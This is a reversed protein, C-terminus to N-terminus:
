GGFCRAWIRAESLVRDITADDAGPELRAWAALRSASPAGDGIAVRGVVHAGAREAAAALADLAAASRGHDVVLVPADLRAALELGSDDEVLPSAAAGPLEVVTVDGFGRAAEVADLLMTLSLDLGARAAAETPSADTAFRYPSAVLPPMPHGRAERLREGDPGRLDQKEDYPCGVEVPKVVAPLGGEARAIRVLSAAIRTKGVGRALGAVCLLPSARTTM